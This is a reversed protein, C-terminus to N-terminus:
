RTNEQHSKMHTKLCHSQTFAKDCVSCKYPREGNHTRMHVKLHELRACAKGCVGCTFLKVGLHIRVHSNLHSKSKFHRGCHSCGYPAEGTHVRLHIKLPGNSIFRKSCIPCAFPRDSSHTKLHARLAYNTTFTKCCIDCLYKQDRVTHIKEHSKLTHDIKFRKGCTKCSYPRESSHTAKHRGLSRLDSLSKGCINCLFRDRGTHVRSHVRLQTKLGFEKHCVDCKHPKEAVHVWRHVMLRSMTAFTKSCVDCKYPQEGSHSTTHSKLGSITVFSKGCLSCEHTKKHRKLDTKLDEVNKFQEGCVGCVSPSEDIHSWAHKILSGQLRYTVGCVKCPTKVAEMSTQVQRNKQTQQQPKPKWDADDDHTHETKDDDDDDDSDSHSQLVVEDAQDFLGHDKEPRETSIDEQRSPSKSLCLEAEDSMTQAAAATPSDSSTKDNIESVHLEEEDEEGTKLRIYIITTQLRCPKLSRCIEDPTMAKVKIPMLMRSKDSTFLDFGRDDGDMQPFTSRLMLLFDSEQLGHPCRLKQIESRVLVKKSLPDPQVEELFCLRLTHHNANESLPPRGRPRRKKPLCKSFIRLEDDDSKTREGTASPGDSSTDDIQLLHSEEEEKTKLRIYIITTQLRCPKLSSCIEDPTMAKVKVPTLMRSRDSTFLDFGRDDGDLQPFRSRLMLLFDSEQLGRPCRLQQVASRVLVKKSLPDPQVEELFCLRLTHHNANKSALPRGRPRKMKALCKPFLRLEDDDSKTREGTASPCDSSTDDIQLLHSEEEEKTKLRIYIMTTQLRCPKLSRCIEDPTMAKVKIPMLTRSRDSTFLDFGRDDGDMQPFTSRLMLLFDSEQLGHPCRLQQVASRVLVKKSLPDPQVEELFCLKLTHHNANESLPPRGRPRELLGEPSLVRTWPGSQEDNREQIEAASSQEDVATRPRIYLASSGAGVSSMRRCIEEPTLTQVRLPQLRRSRDTTFVGFPEHVDLQPFTSSLLSLFDAEQLGPPCQLDQVPCKQFVATTLVDTQSDELVCIRLQLGDPKERITPRGRKRRESGLRSSSRNSKIQYDPDKRDERQQVKRQEEKEEEGEGEEEEDYWLFDLIGPDTQQTQMEEDNVDVVADCSDVDPIFDTRELKVQPQLLVELQRRQREMEKRFGSAEEEYGAVTREVVALIERAATSLRDTVIGRLIEVKSMPGLGDVAESGGGGNMWYM